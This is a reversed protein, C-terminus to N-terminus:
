ELGFGEANSLAIILKQHLTNKDPYEPLVLQNFCTHAEPLYVPRDRLRTIKFNMESMGGVPVRDGGTVFRLFRKQMESPLDFLVEWFERPFPIFLSWVVFLSVCSYSMRMKCPWRVRHFFFITAVGFNPFKAQRGALYNFCIRTVHCRVRRYQEISIHRPRCNALLVTCDASSRMCIEHLHCPVSLFNSVSFLYSSLWMARVLCWTFDFSLWRSMWRILRDTAKYGDYETNKQLERLDIKHSGCVLIEVEEPRLM